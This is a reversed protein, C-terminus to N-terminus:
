RRGLAQELRLDPGGQGQGLIQQLLAAIPSQPNIARTEPVGPTRVYPVAPAPPAKVGALMKALDPPKAAQPAEPPRPRPLPVQPNVVPRPQPLPVAQQPPFASAMGSEDMGGSPPPAGKKALIDGVAEPNEVMMRGIAFPDFDLNFLQDLEGVM